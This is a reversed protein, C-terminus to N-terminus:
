DYTLHKQGVCLDMAELYDRYFSTREFAVAGKKLCHEVARVHPQSFAGIQRYSTWETRNYVSQNVYYNSILEASKKIDAIGGELDSLMAKSLGRDAYLEILPGCELNCSHYKKFLFETRDFLNVAENFDSMYALLKAKGWLAFKKVKCLHFDETLIDLESSKLVNNYDSIASNFDRIETHLVARNYYSQIDWPQLELSHEFDKIASHVNGVARHVLGRNYYSIASSPDVILARNFKELLREPAFSLLQSFAFSSVSKSTFSDRYFTAGHPNFYLLDRESGVFTHTYNIGDTSEFTVEVSKPYGLGLTLTSEPWIEV